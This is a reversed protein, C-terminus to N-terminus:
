HVLEVPLASNLLSLTTPGEVLTQGPQNLQTSTEEYWHHIKYIYRILDEKLLKSFASELPSIKSHYAVPLEYGGRAASLLSAIGLLSTTFMLLKM